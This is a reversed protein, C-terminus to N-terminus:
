FNRITRVQFKHTLIGDRMCTGLTGDQNSQNWTWARYAKEYQTSSWYDRNEAPAIVEGGIIELSGDVPFLNGALILLQKSAPLYWGQDFNVCQMAPFDNIRGSQWFKQTNFYGATDLAIQCDKDSGIGEPLAIGEGTVFACDECQNEKHVIWGHHGSEDVWFVVGEATKGSAAFDVPRIISGDSCYIDGVAVFPGTEEEPAQGTSEVYLQVEDGECIVSDSRVIKIEPSPLVTLALSLISDCGATTKHYQYHLRTGVETQKPLHFNNKHYENGSCVTDTQFQQYSPHPTVMLSVSGSTCATSYHLTINGARSEDTFEAELTRDKSNSNIIVGQPVEWQWRNGIDYSSFPISYTERTGTCPSTNGTMRDPSLSSASVSLKLCVISDQGSSSILRLTDYYLGPEPARWEFGSDTYDEGECIGAEIPYYRQNVRLLLTYLTQSQCQNLDCFTRHYTFDGPKNQPSLSFENKVYSAGQPITDKIIRDTPPLAGKDSVFASLYGPYGTVSVATCSLAMDSDGMQCKQEQENQNNFWNYSRFGDPASLTFTKDNCESMQMKASICEVTYYAYAWNSSYYSAGATKTFQVEVQKGGFASMDFILDTWKSWYPSLKGQMPINMHGGVTMDLTAYQHIPQGSVNLVRITFHSKYADPLGRNENFIAAFKVKLLPRESNVIFHYSISESQDSRDEGLRVVKSTNEPLLPLKGGSYADNGPSTILTHRGSVVGRNLSPDSHNGYTAEVCSAKLDLFDPVSPSVIIDQAFSYGTFLIFCWLLTVRFVCM